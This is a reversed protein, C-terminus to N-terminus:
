RMGARVEEWALWCRPHLQSVVRQGGVVFELGIEATDTAITEGCGCCVGGASWSGWASIADQAPLAGRRIARRVVELLPLADM